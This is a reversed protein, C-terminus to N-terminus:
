FDTSFSIRSQVDRVTLALRFKPDMTPDMLGQRTWDHIMHKYSLIKYMYSVLALWLETNFQILDNVTYKIRDFIRYQHLVLFKGKMCSKFIKAM